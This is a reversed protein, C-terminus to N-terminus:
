GEKLDEKMLYDEFLINILTEMRYRASARVDSIPSIDKALADALGSRTLGKKLFAEETRRARRVTPGVSGCAIRLGYQPHRLIAADAIAIMLANRTGVKEYTGRWPAAGTSGADAEWSKLPIRIETLIEDDRLCTVGPREALDEVPIVRQGALSQLVAEAGCAVLVPVTDAAPSANVLNGGITGRRRIQPSGVKGSAAALPPCWENVLKDHSIRDHTALAGIALYAPDSLRIRGCEEILGSIDLLAAGAFKGKRMQPILDTTGAATRYPGAAKLELAEKLTGAKTYSSIRMM